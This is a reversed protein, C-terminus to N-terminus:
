PKKFTVKVKAGDEASPPSAIGFKLNKGVVSRLSKNKARPRISFILKRGQKTCTVRLASNKRKKTMDGAAKTHAEGKVEAENLKGEAFDEDATITEATATLCAVLRQGPTPLQLMIFAM